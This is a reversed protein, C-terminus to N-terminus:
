DKIELPQPKQAAHPHEPGAYIKLKTLQKRALRNRPLMGKVALRIVEEPRRDLMDQLTRTRLGGPAVLVRVLPGLPVSPDLPNRERATAVFRDADAQLMLREGVLRECVRRVADVYAEHSPYREEISPRPDGNAEREPLRVNANPFRRGRM